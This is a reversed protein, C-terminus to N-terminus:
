VAVVEEFLKEHQNYATIFDLSLEDLESSSIGLRDLTSGDFAYRLGEGSLGLGISMALYDGVHVADLYPDFPDASSPRHHYRISNVLVGPLNWNEALHAGVDAHDYGLMKREIEDFPLGAREAIDLLGAMKGELWISLAVKGINHLLGATFAVDADINNKRKAVLQAGVATGFSHAWLEHPGLCYGTLPKALWPYTGAVIALNRVSRMGLVVVAEQPDSIKRSLGYFASNALRLVRVTLSQDQQLIRSVSQASATSSEAERMVGIAAAPLTPLDTTRACLDDLSLTPTM